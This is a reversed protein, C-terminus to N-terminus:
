EKVKLYFTDNGFSDKINVSDGEVIYDLTVPTYGEGQFSITIKGSETTYTLDLVKGPMDYKGTGDANFTYIYDPLDKSQWKGVIPDVPEQTSQEAVSTGSGSEEKKSDNKNCAALTVMMAFVAAISIIKITKKM